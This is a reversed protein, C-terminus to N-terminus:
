DRCAGGCGCCKGEARKRQRELDQALGDRRLKLATLSSGDLPESGAEVRAIRQQLLEFQQQLRDLRESALRQESAATSASQVDTGHLSQHTSM